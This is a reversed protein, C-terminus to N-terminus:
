QRTFVAEGESANESDLIEAPVILTDGNLQITVTESIGDENIFTLQDGDLSWISSETEFTTPCEVSLGGGDPTLDIQVDDFNRIEADVTEDNNFVFTLIDCGEALLVDAIGKAFLLDDDATAEDIRFETFDWTGVLSSPEMPMENGGDGNDDSSCSFTLTAVLFLLLLNHKM